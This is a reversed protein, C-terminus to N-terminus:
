KLLLRVTEIWEELYNQGTQEFLFKYDDSDWLLCAAKQDRLWYKDVSGLHACISLCCHQRAWFYVPNCGDSIANDFHTHPIINVALQNLLPSITATTIYPPHTLICRLILPCHLEEIWHRAIRHVAICYISPPLPLSSPPAICKIARRQVRTGNLEGDVKGWLM